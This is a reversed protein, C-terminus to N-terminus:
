LLYYIYRPREPTKGLNKKREIFVSTSMCIIVVSSEQWTETEDSKFYKASIYLIVLIVINGGFEMISVETLSIM